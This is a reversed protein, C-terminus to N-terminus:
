TMRVLSFNMGHSGNWVLGDFLDGSRIIDGLHDAGIKRQASRAGIELREARKMLFFRRGKVDVRLPLGKVAEATADAPRDEAKDHLVLVDIKGRGHAFQTRTDANGHHLFAAGPSLLVTLVLRPPSEQLQVGLRRFPKLIIKKFFIKYLCIM